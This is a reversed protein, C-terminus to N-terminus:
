MGPIKTRQSYNCNLMQPLVLAFFRGVVKFLSKSHPFCYFVGHKFLDKGGKMM